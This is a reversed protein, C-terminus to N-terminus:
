MIIPNMIDKEYICTVCNMLRMELYLENVRQSSNLSLDERFLGDVRKQGIVGFALDFKLHQFYFDLRRGQSDFYLASTPTHSTTLSVIM